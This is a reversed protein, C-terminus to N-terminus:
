NLESKLAWFEFKKLSDLFYKYDRECDSSLGEIGSLEFPKEYNLVKPGLFNISEIEQNSLRQDDDFVLELEELFNGTKNGDCFESKNFCQDIKNTTVHCLYFNLLIFIVKILDM